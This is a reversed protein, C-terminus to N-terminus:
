TLFHLICTYFYYIYNEALKDSELLNSEEDIFIKFAVRFIEKRYLNM